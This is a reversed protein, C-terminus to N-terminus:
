AIVTAVGFFATTLRWPKVPSDFPEGSYYYEVKMTNQPAMTPLDLPMGANVDYADVWYDGDPEKAPGAEPDRYPPGGVQANVNACAIAKVFLVNRRPVNIRLGTARFPVLPSGSVTFHRDKGPELVVTALPFVYEEVKIDSDKNPDLKLARAATAERRRQHSALIEAAIAPLPPLDDIGFDGPGLLEGLAVILRRTEEPTIALVVSDAEYPPILRLTVTRKTDPYMARTQDSIGEVVIAGRPQPADPLGELELTTM